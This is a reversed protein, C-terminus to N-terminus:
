PQQSTVASSIPALTIEKAELGQAWESLDKLSVDNLSVVANISGRSKAAVELNMFLNETGALGNEVYPASKEQALTKFFEPGKSNLQLIGLGRKFVEDLVPEIIPKVRTFTADLDIAIGAYGSTRSLAWELRERNYKMSYDKLLAQPGPDNMYSNKTQAPVEIWIEHGAARAKEQWETADSAYPSLIFSVESPLSRLVAESEQESLGFDQIVLSIIPFGTHVFPRKYAHFPEEGLASVIPLQLGGATKEYLGSIPAPKLADETKLPLSDPDESLHPDSSDAAVVSSVPIATEIVITESPLKVELGALTQGGTVLIYVAILVYLAGAVGLGQLFANLSFYTKIDITM